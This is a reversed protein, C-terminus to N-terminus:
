LNLLAAGSIFMLLFQWDKLFNVEVHMYGSPQHKDFKSCCHHLLLQGEKIVLLSTGKLWASSPWCINRLQVPLTQLSDAREFLNIWTM